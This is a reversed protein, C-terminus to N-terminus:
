GPALIAPTRSIKDRMACVAPAFSSRFRHVQEFSRAESPIAEGPDPAPEARFPKSRLVPAPLILARVQMGQFYPHAIRLQRVYIANREAGIAVQIGVRLCGVVGFSGKRTTGTGTGNATLGQPWAV